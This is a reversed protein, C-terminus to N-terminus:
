PRRFCRLRVMRQLPTSMMEGEGDERFGLRRILAQSRHNDHNASAVLSTDPARHLLEDIMRCVARQMVRRGWHPRALWFGIERDGKDNTPNCVLGGIVRDHLCLALALGRAPDQMAAEIDAHEDWGLFEDAHDLRYPYPVRALWRTVAWDNLGAVLDERDAARFPRLSIHDDLFFQM